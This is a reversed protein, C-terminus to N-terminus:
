EKNMIELWLREMRNRSHGPKDGELYEVQQDRRTFRGAGTDCPKRRAMIRVEVCTMEAFIDEENGEWHTGICGREVM